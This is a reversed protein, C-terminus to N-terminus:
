SRMAASELRRMFLWVRAGIVLVIVIVTSTLWPIRAPLPALKPQYNYREDDPPDQMPGGLKMENVTWEVSREAAALALAAEHREHRDHWASLAIFSLTWLFLSLVLVPGLISREQM